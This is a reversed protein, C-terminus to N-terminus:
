GDNVEEETYGVFRGDKYRPTLRLGARECAAITDAGLPLPMNIRRKRRRVQRAEIARMRDVKAAPASERMVRAARPDEAALDDLIAGLTLTAVLAQVGRHPCDILRQYWEERRIAQALERARPSELLQRQAPSTM